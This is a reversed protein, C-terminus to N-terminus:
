HTKGSKNKAEIDVGRELLLMINPHYRSKTVTHLPTEGSADKAEIDAGGSEPSLKNPDVGASLGITIQSTLGSQGM